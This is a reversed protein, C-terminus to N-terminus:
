IKRATTAPSYGFSELHALFGRVTMADAAHLKDQVVSILHEPIVQDPGVEDGALYEAFQRLDAGYCRATYPSFHREHKLYDVFQQVVPAQEAM